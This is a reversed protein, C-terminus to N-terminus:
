YTSSIVAVRNKSVGVEDSILSKIVSLCVVAKSRALQSAVLADNKDEKPESPLEDCAALLGVLAKDILLVRLNLRM